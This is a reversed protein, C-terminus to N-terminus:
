FQRKVQILLTCNAHSRVPRKRILQLWDEARDNKATIIANHKWSDHGM